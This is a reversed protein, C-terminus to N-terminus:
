LGYMTRIDSNEHAQPTSFGLASQRMVSMTSAPIPNYMEPHGLGMIHGLEHTLIKTQDLETPGAYNGDPNCWVAGYTIMKNSNQAQSYTMIQAGASDYLIAVAAAYYSIGANDWSTQTPTTLDVTSTSFSVSYAVVPSSSNMWNSVSSGFNDIYPAKLYDGNANLRLMNGAASM